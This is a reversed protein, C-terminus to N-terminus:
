PWYHQACDIAEKILFKTRPSVIEVQDLEYPRFFRVEGSELKDKFDSTEKVWKWPVPMVFALDIIGKVANFVWAPILFSHRPFATPFVLGAEEELEQRLANLIALQYPGSQHGEFHDIEVGGGTMEWKGSLDKGFLSGKEERRRLLFKFSREYGEAKEEMDILVTFIGIGTAVARGRDLNRKCEDLVLKDAAEKGM